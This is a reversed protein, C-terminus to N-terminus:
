PGHLLKPFAFNALNLKLQDGKSCNLIYFHLDPILTEVGLLLLTTLM